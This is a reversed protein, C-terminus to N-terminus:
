TRLCQLISVCSLTFFQSCQGTPITTVSAFFALACQVCLSRSFSISFAVDVGSLITADTDHHCPANQGFCKWCEFRFWLLFAGSFNWSFITCEGVTDIRKISFHAVSRGSETVIAEADHYSKTLRSVQGTTSQKANKYEPKPWSFGHVFVPFNQTAIRLGIQHQVSNETRTQNKKQTEIRVRETQAVIWIEGISQINQAIEIEKSRCEAFMNTFAMYKWRYITIIAILHMHMHTCHASLLMCKALCLKTLWPVCLNTSCEIRGAFSLCGFANWFCRRCCELRFTSIAHLKQRRCLQM